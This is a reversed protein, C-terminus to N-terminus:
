PAIAVEDASSALAEQLGRTALEDALENDVIGAHGKMWFWEVRHRTCAM